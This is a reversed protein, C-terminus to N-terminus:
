RLFLISLLAGPIVLGWRGGFKADELMLALQIAVFPMVIVLYYNAKASSVSFIGYTDALCYVLVFTYGASTCYENPCISLGSPFIVMPISVAVGTSPLVV